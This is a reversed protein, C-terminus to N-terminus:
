KTWFESLLNFHRCINRNCNIYNSLTHHCENGYVVQSLKNPPRDIHIGAVEVVGPVLPRPKNLSFHSNVLILSGRAAIDSLSPLTVRLHKSAILRGPLDYFLPYVIWKDVFTDVTNLLREHFAMKDSYSQFLNPIYSPNDPNGIRDNAWPMLVSSSFYIFPANLVHILGLFCDTNFLETIILDFKQNVLEQVQPLPLISKCHDDAMYSLMIANVISGVSEVKKFSIDGTSAMIVSGEISIHTINTLTYEQPFHSVAIIEHGRAALHRLYPAYVDHHSKGVHPFFALIRSCTVIQICLLAAAAVKMQFFPLYTVHLCRVNAARTFEYLM